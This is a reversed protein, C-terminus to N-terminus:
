RAYKCTSTFYILNIYMYYSTPTQAALLHRPQHSRQLISGRTNILLRSTSITLGERFELYKNNWTNQLCKHLIKITLWLSCGPSCASCLQASTICTRSLTSIISKHCPWIVTLPIPYNETTIKAKEIVTSDHFKKITTNNAILNNDLISKLIASNQSCFCRIVGTIQDYVIEIEEHIKKIM